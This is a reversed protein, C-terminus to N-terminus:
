WPSPHLPPSLAVRTLAPVPPTPHRLVASHDPHVAGERRHGAHDRQHARAKEAAATVRWVGCMVCVRVCWRVCAGRGAHRRGQGDAACPRADPRTLPPGTWPPVMFCISACLPRRLGHARGSQAAVAAPQRGTRRLRCRQSGKSSSMTCPLQQSGQLRQAHAHAHAHGGARRVCRPGAPTNSLGIRNLCGKPANQPQMSRPLFSPHCFVSQINCM